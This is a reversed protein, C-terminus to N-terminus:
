WLKDEQKVVIKAPLQLKDGQKLITSEIHFNAALVADFMTLDGYYQYVLQDLRMNDHEVMIQKM